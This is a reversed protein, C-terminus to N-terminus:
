LFELTERTAQSLGGVASNQSGIADLGTSEDVNAGGIGGEERLKDLEKEVEREVALWDRRDLSELARFYFALKKQVAIAGTGGGKIPNAKPTATASVTSPASVSTIQSASSPLSFLAYLDSLVHFLKPRLDAIIPPHLLRPLISLLTELAEPSPLMDSQSGIIEWVSGWAAGLSEYRVTSRPEVLFPVLRGIYTRIHIRGTTGTALYTADLSPLRYSLLTHIYAICIAIANYVLKKGVGEPPHIGELVASPLLEPLSASEMELSRGKEREDEDDGEVADVVELAAEDGEWWPLVNPVGMDIGTGSGDDEGLDSDRAVADELLAQTIESEPNRLAELFADRHTQPLLHFLANSDINDLDVDKLREALEDDAGEDEELRRLQEMLDKVESEPGAGDGECGVSIDLGAQAEEFQRLMDLMDKKDSLGASPDSAISSM